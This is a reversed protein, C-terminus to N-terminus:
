DEKVKAMYSVSGQSNPLIEALQWRIHTYDTTKAPRNKGDKNTVTLAEKPAFNIGGDISYSISAVPTEASGAIYNMEKAIENSITVRTATEQGRNTYQTTYIITDGPIVSTAEIRKTQLQGKEDKVIVQEQALVNLEIARNDALVLSSINASLAILLVAYKM